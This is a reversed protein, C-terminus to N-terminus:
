SKRTQTKTQNVEVLAKEELDCYNNALNVFFAFNRIYDLICKADDTSKVHNNLIKRIKKFGPNIEDYFNEITEKAKLFAMVLKVRTRFTKGLRDTSFIDPRKDYKRYAGRSQSRSQSPISTRNPSNQNSKEYLSSKKTFPSSSQYSM